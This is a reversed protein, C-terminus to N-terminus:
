PLAAAAAVLAGVRPSGWGTTADWGVAAGYGACRQPGPPPCTGRGCANNGAVTDFFLPTGGGGGLAYLAPNFFGLPPKGATARAANALTVVAAFVPASASTGDMVAHKGNHRLLYGHGIAAVDPIARMGPSFFSPPPLAGDTDNGALYAAVAADQWPPRASYNSFGGGSTILAAGGETSCVREVVGSGYCAAPLKYWGTPPHVCVDTTPSALPSWSVNQDVQTAGVGIVWPSSAPWSVPLTSRCTGDGADGMAGADGSSAIFTIGRAAQAAFLANKQELQAIAEERSGFSISVVRPFVEMGALDELFELYGETGATMFWFDAAGATLSGLYLTDLASEGGWAAGPRAPGTTNAVAWPAVGNEACFSAIDTANALAVENFELVATITRAPSPPRPQPMPFGYHAALSEMTTLPAHSAVAVTSRYTTPQQLPSPTDRGAIPFDFLQTFWLGEIGSLAPSAVPVVRDFRHFRTSGERLCAYEHLRAHGGFLATVTSANAVCRLSHPFRACPVGLAALASSATHVDASPPSTLLAVEERSLWSGYKAHSPDSVDLLRRQLSASQLATILFVVSFPIAADAPALGLRKYSAAVDAHRGALLDAAVLPLLLLCCLLGMASFRLTPVASTYLTRHISYYKYYRACCCCCCCCCSVTAAASRYM